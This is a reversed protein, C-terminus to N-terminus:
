AEPEPKTFISLDVREGRARLKEYFEPVLGTPEFRGQVRGREDYGTQQFRFIEALQVRGGEVGTVESISTVKRQGCSFRTQQVILNVASSIQERIAISPLDMGAMMVMVELRAVCDRPSNAHATTLSGDHGTNMAQLMDLAEGGRCEGVVIRDPRMRLCNKVLDRIRVEGKGEQNPPRAELSVLNPQPLQLEAADEVTVVREDFPIFGSLVNLLTTKGSGTGGSIVVNRKALVATRLVSAMADSMSGFGVLREITLREKMFKRITICPGKLALPPIVANVRSGDRLRADVMPSSEDIRRGLPSVIREIAAVVAQDDTFTIKSKELRGNREFFIQDAANVMIESVSEDEILEELPGLGVAEDVVQKKLAERSLEPPLERQQQQLIQDLLDETVKRLADHSMQTVAVRRLDMQELLAKHLRKRWEVTLALHRQAATDNEAPPTTADEAVAAPSAMSAAAPATEVPKAPLSAGQPAGEQRPSAPAVAENASRTPMVSRNTPPKIRIQYGTIEIVDDVSLPGFSEVRKGNVKTGSGSGHDDLFVDAGVLRLSAHKRGVQWGHLVIRNDQHKGITCLEESVLENSIVTGKLTSVHIQYM